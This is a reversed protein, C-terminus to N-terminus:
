DKKLLNNIGISILGKQVTAYFDNIRELKPLQSSPINFRSLDPDGSIDESYYGIYEPNLIACLAAAQKELLDKPDTQKEFPILHIEGAAHSFGNYLKRDILIGCGNCAIYSQYLVALNRVGPHLHSFGICASNVDNEIVCPLGTENRILSGPDTNCLAEIDCVEIRGSACVGPISICVCAILPDKELLKRLVGDLIEMGGTEDTEIVSACENGALDSAFATFTHHDKGYQAILTGIHAYDKNLTYQKSKRGVKSDAKGVLLIERREQLFKLVNTTGALSLGTEDSLENKTWIGGRYFCSRIDRINETKLENIRTM